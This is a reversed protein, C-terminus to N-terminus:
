SQCLSVRARAWAAPLRLSRGLLTSPRDSPWLEPLLPLLESRPPRLACSPDSPESPCPPQLQKAPDPIHHLHLRIFSYGSAFDPSTSHHSGCLHCRPILIRWGSLDRPPRPQRALRLLSHCDAAHNCCSYDLGLWVCLTLACALTFHACMSQMLALTAGDAKAIAGKALVGSLLPERCYDASTLPTRKSPMCSHRSASLGMESRFDVVGALPGPLPTTEHEILGKSLQEM